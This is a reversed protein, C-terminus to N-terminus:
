EAPNLVLADIGASFGTSAPNRDVAELRLVHTRSDFEVQGLEVIKADVASSYADVSPGLQKGDLSVRVVAYNWSTVLRLKLVYRGPRIAQPLALEIADGQEQFRIFLLRGGSLPPLSALGIEQRVVTVGESCTRIELDEGELAHRLRYETPWNGIWLSPKRSNGHVSYVDFSDPNFTGPCAYCYAQGWPDAPIEATYPWKEAKAAFRPPCRVLEDLRGPYEGTDRRFREVADALAAVSQQARLVMEAFRKDEEVLYRQMDGYLDDWPFRRLSIGDLRCNLGPEDADEARSLPNAGVCEFRFM